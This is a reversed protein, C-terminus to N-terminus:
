PCFQPRSVYSHVGVRWETVRGAGDLVFMMSREPDDILPEPDDVPETYAVQGGPIPETRVEGSAAGEDLSSGYGIDERTRVVTNIVLYAMVTGDADLVVGLYKQPDFRVTCGNQQLGVVSFDTTLANDVFPVTTGVKTIGLGLPGATMEKLGGPGFDPGQLFDEASRVDNGFGSTWCRPDPTSVSDCYAYLAPDTPDARKPQVTNDDVPGPVDTGADTPDPAPVDTRVPPADGTERPTRDDVRTSPPPDPPPGLDPSAVAAAVALVCVLGV